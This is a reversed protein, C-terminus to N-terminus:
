KPVSDPTKAVQLLAKYKEVLENYLDYNQRIVDLAYDDKIRTNNTIAIKILSKPEIDLNSPIQKPVQLLPAQPICTTSSCGIMLYSVSLLIMTTLIPKLM